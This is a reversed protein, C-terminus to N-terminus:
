KSLVCLGTALTGIITLICVQNGPANAEFPDNGTAAFLAPAGSRHEDGARFIGRKRPGYINGYHRPIWASAIRLRKVPFILAAAGCFRLPFRFARIQPNSAIICMLSAARLGKQVIERPM